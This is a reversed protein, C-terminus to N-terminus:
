AVGRPENGPQEGDGPVGRIVGTPCSPSSREFEDAVSLDRRGGVARVRMEGELDVVGEPLEVGVQVFRDNQHTQGPEGVVLGGLDETRGGAGDFAPDKAGPFAQHHQELHSCIM